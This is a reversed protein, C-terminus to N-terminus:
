CKGMEDMECREVAAYLKEIDNAPIEITPSALADSHTSVIKNERKLDHMKAEGHCIHLNYARCRYPFTSYIAGFLIHM